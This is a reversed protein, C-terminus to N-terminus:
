IQFRKESAISDNDGAEEDLNNITVDGYFDIIIIDNCQRDLARIQNVREIHDDNIPIIIVKNVTVVQGTSIKLVNHGKGNNTRGIYIADSTAEKDKDTSSSGGTHAEVYQRIETEALRLSIGTVLQRPSM